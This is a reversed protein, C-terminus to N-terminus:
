ASSVFSSTCGAASANSLRVFTNAAICPWTSPLATYPPNNLRGACYLVRRAAIYLEGCAGTSIGGVGSASNTSAPATALPARGANISAPVPRVIVYASSGDSTSRAAADSARSPMAFPWTQAIKAAFEGSYTIATSATARRPATTVVALGSYVFSSRM